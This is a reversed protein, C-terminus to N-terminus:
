EAKGLNDDGPTIDDIAAIGCVGIPKGRIHEDLLVLAHSLIASDSLKELGPGCFHVFNADAFDYGDNANRVKKLRPELQELLRTRVLMLIDADARVPKTKGKSGPVRPVLM